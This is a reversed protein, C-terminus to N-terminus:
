DGSWPSFGSGKGTFTCLGLQQATLSGGISDTYTIRLNKKKDNPLIWLEIGNFRKKKLVQLSCNKPIMLDDDDTRQGEKEDRKQKVQERAGVHHPKEIKGRKERSDM